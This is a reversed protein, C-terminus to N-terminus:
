KGDELWADAPMGPKFIGNPNKLTVKVRYVLKAREDSTQVNKPSFEAEPSIFTIIGTFKEKSGDIRVEARCGLKVTSLKPEPIYISLWVEDIRSLELIFGGAPLVEGEEAGKLTIVGNMPANVICDALYKEMEALRTKALDSATRADDLQKQTISKEAFLELARKLDQGALWATATAEDRKLEYDTDDLQALLQGKKVSDGEEVPLKVIRGSVEPSIRVQTCEITGSGDPKSRGSGCGALLTAAIVVIPILSKNM